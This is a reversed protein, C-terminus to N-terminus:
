AFGVLSTVQAYLREAEQTFIGLAILLSVRLGIIDDEPMHM